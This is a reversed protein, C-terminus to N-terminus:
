TDAKKVSSPGIRMKRLMSSFKQSLTAGIIAAPHRPAFLAALEDNRRQRAIEEATLADAGSPAGAARPTARNDGRPQTISPGGERPPLTLQQMIGKAQVQARAFHEALGGGRLENVAEEIAQHCTQAANATAQAREEVDRAANFLKGAADSGVVFNSIAANYRVQDIQTACANSEKCLTALRAYNSRVNEIDHRTLNTLTTAIQALLKRKGDEVESNSPSHAVAQIQRIFESLQDAEALYRQALPEGETFLARTQANFQNANGLTTAVERDFEIHTTYIRAVQAATSPPRSRPRAAAYPRATVAPLAGSGAGLAPGAEPAHTVATSHTPSSSRQDIRPM